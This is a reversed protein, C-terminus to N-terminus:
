GAFLSRTMERLKFDDLHLFKNTDGNSFSTIEFCRELEKVAEKYRRETRRSDGFDNTKEPGQEGTSHDVAKAETERAHDSGTLHGSKRDLSTTSLHSTATAQPSNDTGDKITQQGKSISENTSENPRFISKFKSLFRQRKTRLKTM